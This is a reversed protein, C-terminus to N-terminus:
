RTRPTSTPSTSTSATSTTAGAKKDRTWTTKQVGPFVIGKHADPAEQRGLRVLRPLPRRPGAPGVPVLSPRDSTHNVVLDMLVRIGRQKAGHTFEVFDGLSGYRPDVGYYDAVDYGNDRRPSPQFPMLWIATVGLGQLYDLRRVLGVFDGIGDGNGDLFSEVSCCYIVANKYWRESVMREEKGAGPTRAARGSLDAAARSDDRNGIRADPTPGTRSATALPLHVAALGVIGDDVIGGGVIAVDVEADGALPPHQPGGFAARAWLLDHQV